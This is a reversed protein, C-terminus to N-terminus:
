ARVLRTAVNFEVRIFFEAIDASLNNHGLLNYGRLSFGMVDRVLM